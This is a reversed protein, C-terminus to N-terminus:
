PAPKAARARCTDPSVRRGCKESFFKRIRKYGVSSREGFLVILLGGCPGGPACASPDVDQIGREGGGGGGGGKGLRFGGM